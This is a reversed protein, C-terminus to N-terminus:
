GILQRPESLKERAKRVGKRARWRLSPAGETDFMALILGGLLGLNKLFHIRQQSRQAPEDFEWFRHGALTTPVLSAALATAALRRFRGTALLLGGVVQLCANIKVLQEPDPPLSLPGAVKNTVPEALKARPGPRRWVDIGSSVFVASLLPRALWRSLTM